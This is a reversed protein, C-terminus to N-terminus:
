KTVSWQVVPIQSRWATFSGLPEAHDIAIRTLTGGHRAAREQLAREGELTVANAVFRGGDRLSEYAGDLVGDTTLGGGVFVADPRDLDDYVAPAGEIKIELHPVGLTHANRRIREARDPRSEIAVARATPEARLWEIGISGSGAGVDWLLRGPAPALAALTIARVHSKTLAGDSEYADDPLGPTRPLLRDSKCEIAVAHLPDRTADGHAAATTRTIRENAGGLRELVIFTSDGFSRATLADALDAAGRTGTVYVILRRGPQLSRAVVDVPRGVASVLEVDAAPWALRATALTFASPHPLVRLEAGRRALSAGVGHLMPDGSALVCADTGPLEDLLPDIPSPWARKVAGNDPVLELQRASGVITTANALATRAEDGLGAWGDAGIGVVTLM